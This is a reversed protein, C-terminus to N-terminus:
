CGLAQSRIYLHKLACMYGIFPMRFPLFNFLSIPMSNSRHKCYPEQSGQTLRSLHM